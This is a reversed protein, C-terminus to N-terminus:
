QGDSKKERLRDSPEWVNQPYVHEGRGNKQLQTSWGCFFAFM